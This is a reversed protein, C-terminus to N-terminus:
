RIARSNSSSRSASRVLGDRGGIVYCDHEGEYGLEAQGTRVGLELLRNTLASASNTQLLFFPPLFPRASELLQGDRSAEAPLPRVPRAVTWVAASARRGAPSM